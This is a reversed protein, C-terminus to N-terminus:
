IDSQILTSVVSPVTTIEKSICDWRGDPYILVGPNAAIWKEVEAFAQGESTAIVQIKQLYPTACSGSRSYRAFTYIRM